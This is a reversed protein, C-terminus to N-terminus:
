AHLIEEPIGQNGKRRNLIFDCLIEIIKDNNKYAAFHM